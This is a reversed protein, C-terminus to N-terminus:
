ERSGHTGILEDIRQRRAVRPLLRLLLWSGCSIRRSFRHLRCRRCTSIIVIRICCRSAVRCRTVRRLLVIRLMRVGCWGRSHLMCRRRTHYVVRLQLWLRSQACRCRRLLVIQVLLRLMMRLLVMRLLLQMLVRRRWKKLGRGRWRCRGRRAALVGVRRGRGADRRGLIQGRGGRPVTRSRQYCRSGAFGRWAEGRRRSTRRPRRDGCRGGWGCASTGSRYCLSTGRQGGRWGCGRWCGRGGTGGASAVVRRVLCVGGAVLWRLDVRPHLPHVDSLTLGSGKRRRIRRGRLEIAAIANLQM